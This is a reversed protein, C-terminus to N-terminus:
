CRSSENVHFTLRHFIIPLRTDHGVGYNFNISSISTSMTSNPRAMPLNRETSLIPAWFIIRLTEFVFGAQFNVLYSEIKQESKEKCAESQTDKEKKQAHMSLFARLQFFSILKMIPRPPCPPPCPPFGRLTWTIKKAHRKRSLPKQLLFIWWWVRSGFFIGHEFCPKNLFVKQHSGKTSGVLIEVGGGGCQGTDAIKTFPLSLYAKKQSFACRPPHKKPYM